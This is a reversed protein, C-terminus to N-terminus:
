SVLGGFFILSGNSIVHLVSLVDSICVVLVMVICVESSICCECVGDECLQVHLLFRAFYVCLMVDGLFCRVSVWMWCFSLVVMM